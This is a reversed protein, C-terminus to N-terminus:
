TVAQRPPLDTTLAWKLLKATAVRLAWLVQGGFLAEPGHWWLPGFGSGPVTERGHLRGQHVTKSCADYIPRLLEATTGDIFPQLTRRFAEGVMM